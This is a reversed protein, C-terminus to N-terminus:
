YVYACVSDNPNTEDFLDIRCRQGIIVTAVNVSQAVPINRILSQPSEAYYVDVTRASAHVANIFGKKYTARVLKQQQQRFTQNVPVFSM